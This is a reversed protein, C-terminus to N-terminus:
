PAPREAVSTVVDEARVPEDFSLELVRDFGLADSNM